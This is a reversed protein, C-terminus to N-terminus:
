GNTHPAVGLTACARETMAERVEATDDMVLAMGFLQSFYGWFRWAADDPSHGAALLAPALDDRLREVFARLEHALAPFRERQALVYQTLRLYPGYAMFLGVHRQVLRALSEDRQPRLVQELPELPELVAAAFLADKSAFYNLLTPHRVGVVAAIDALRTAELGQRAFVLVAADLIAARRADREAQNVTRPVV